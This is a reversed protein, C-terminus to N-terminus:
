KIKYKWKETVLVTSNTKVYNLDKDAAKKM